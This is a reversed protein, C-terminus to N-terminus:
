PQDEILKGLGHEDRMLRGLNNDLRAVSQRFEREDKRLAHSLTKPLRSQWLCFSVMLCALAMRGFWFLGPEFTHESPREVPTARLEALVTEPFAEWYEDNRTPVRLSNLRSQLDSDKM